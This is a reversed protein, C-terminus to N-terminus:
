RRELWVRHLPLEACRRGFLFGEWDAVRWGQLEVTLRGPDYVLEIWAEGDSLSEGLLAGGVTRVRAACLPLARGQADRTGIWLRARWSPELVVDAVLRGQRDIRLDRRVGQVSTRGEAEVVWSLALGEPVRWTVEGFSAERPVLHPDFASAACTGLRYRDVLVAVRFREIPAGSESARPRFVLQRTAVDDLCLLQVAPGPCTARVSRPSWAFGDQMPPTLEYEGQPVRDFRFTYGEEGREGAAQCHAWLIREPEDLSALRVLGSPTHLGTRSVLRGEITGTALQELAIEVLTVEGAAVLVDEVATACTPASVRIRQRGASLGLIEFAGGNDARTREELGERAFRLQAGEVPRGEGDVIRGRLTARPALRLRVVESCTRASAHVRASAGWLGDRTSLHLAFVSRGGVDLLSVSPASQFRVWPWPGARLALAASESDPNEPLALRAVLDGLEAGPPLELDFRYAPGLELAWVGERAQALALECREPGDLFRPAVDPRHPLRSQFRGDPGSLVEEVPGTGDALVVSVGELPSGDDARVVLGRV